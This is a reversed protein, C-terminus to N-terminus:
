EESEKSEEWISCTDKWKGTQHLCHGDCNCSGADDQYKCTRIIIEDDGHKQEYEERRYEFRLDREWDAREEPDASYQRPDAHISM